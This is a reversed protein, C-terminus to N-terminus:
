YRRPGGGRRGKDKDRQPRAEDVNLTRGQLQTGNLGAKAKEAAEYWSTNYATSKSKQEATLAKSYVGIPPGPIFVYADTNSLLSMEHKGMQGLSDSPSGKVGRIYAEVDEFLLIPICGIKRAEIVVERAFDLGSSWSEVTISEGKKVKLSETLIKKAVSAYLFDTVAGKKKSPMDM